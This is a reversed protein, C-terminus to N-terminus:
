SYSYSRSNIHIVHSQKFVFYVGLRMHHYYVGNESVWINSEMPLKRPGWDKSWQLAFAVCFSGRWHCPFCPAVAPHRLDAAIAWTGSPHMVILFHNAVSSQPIPDIYICVYMCLYISLFTSLYFSLYVYIYVHKYMCIYIIDRCSVGFLTPPTSLYHILINIIINIFASSLTSSSPSSSSASASSALFIILNIRLLLFIILNLLIINLLFVSGLVPFCM